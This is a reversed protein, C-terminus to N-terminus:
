FTLGERWYSLGLVVLKSSDSATAIDVFAQAGM